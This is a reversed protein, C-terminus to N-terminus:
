KVLGVGIELNVTGSISCKEIMSLSGERLIHTKEDGM